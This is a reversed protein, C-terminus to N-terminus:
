KKCPTDSNETFTTGDDYKLKATFTWKGGTCKAPTKMYTKKNKGKGSTAAKTKLSFFTLIAYQSNGNGDKCQNTPIGPPVCSAPVTTKLTPAAGAGLKGKILLTQNGIPSQIVVWLLLQKKGNYGTVTGTLEEGSPLAFPIRARVNGAGIKAKAPCADDPNTAASFEEETATCVPLAKYDIKTGAPFTIDFQTTRKPQKNKPNAEDISDTSFNTGTSVSLKKQTYTQSYHQVSEAMAIATLALALAGIVAGVILKRM